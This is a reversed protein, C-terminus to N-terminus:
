SCLGVSVSAPLLLCFCLYISLCVSPCVPMSMSMSCAILSSFSILALSLSLARTSPQTSSNCSRVFDYLHPLVRRLCPNTHSELQMYFHSRQCFIKMAVLDPKRDFHLLLVASRDATVWVHRVAHPPWTLPSLVCRRWM